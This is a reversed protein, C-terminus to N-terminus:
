AAGEGDGFRMRSCAYLASVFAGVGKEGSHVKRDSLREMVDSATPPVDQERKLGVLNDFDKPRAGLPRDDKLEPPATPQDTDVKAISAARWLKFLDRNESTASSHAAISSAYSLASEVYDDIRRVSEGSSSENKLSAGLLRQYWPDKGFFKAQNARLAKSYTFRWLVCFRLWAGMMDQLSSDTGTVHAPLDNWTLQDERDRGIIRVRGAPEASAPARFDEAAALAAILEPALPPNVQEQSGPAHYSLSFLPNWGVVYIDYFLKEGKLVEDYYQLAAKTQQLMQTSAVVNAKEDQGPAFSFYPLM